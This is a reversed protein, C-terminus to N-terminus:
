APEKEYADLSAEWAEVWSMKGQSQLWRRKRALTQKRLLYLGEPLHAQCCVIELSEAGQPHPPLLVVLRVHAGQCPVPHRTFSCPYAQAVPQTLVFTAPWDHKLREATTLPESPTMPEPEPWPAGNEVGREQALRRTLSLAMLPPLRRRGEWANLTQWDIDLLAALKTQSLGMRRRLQKLERTVTIPDYPVKRKM